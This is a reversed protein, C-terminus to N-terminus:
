FYSNEHVYTPRILINFLAFIHRSHIYNTTVTILTTQHNIQMGFNLNQNIKSLWLISFTTNFKCKSVQFIERGNTTYNMAMQYIYNM